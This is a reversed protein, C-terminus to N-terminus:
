LNCEQCRPNLCIELSKHRLLFCTVNSRQNDNIIQEKLQSGFHIIHNNKTAGTCRVAASSCGQPGRSTADRSPTWPGSEQGVRFHIGVGDPSSTRHRCKSRRRARWRHVSAPVLSYFSRLQPSIENNYLATAWPYVEHDRSLSGPNLDQNSSNFM